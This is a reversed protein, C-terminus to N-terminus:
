RLVKRFEQINFSRINRYRWRKILKNVVREAKDKQNFWAVCQRNTTLCFRGKVISVFGILGSKDTMKINYVM